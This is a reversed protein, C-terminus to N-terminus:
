EGCGLATRVQAELEAARAKLSVLEQEAGLVFARAATWTSIALVYGAASGGILIMLNM